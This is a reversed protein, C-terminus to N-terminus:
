GRAKVWIISRKDERQGNLCNRAVFVPIQCYEIYPECGVFACGQCDDPAPAARLLVGDVVRQQEHDITELAVRSM